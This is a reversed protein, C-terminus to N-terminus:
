SDHLSFFTDFSGLMVAKTRADMMQVATARAEKARKRWYEADNSANLAM